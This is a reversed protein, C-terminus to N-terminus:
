RKRIPTVPAPRRERAASQMETRFLSFREACAPCVDAHLHPVDSEAVVYDTVRLPGVAIAAWGPCPDPSAPLDPEDRWGHGGRAHRRLSRLECPDPETFENATTGCWDCVLRIRKGMVSDYVDRLAACSRATM